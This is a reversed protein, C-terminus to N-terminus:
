HELMLCRIIQLNIEEILCNNCIVAAISDTADDDIDNNNLNFIKLSSLVKLSNCIKVIKATNIMTNSLDLRELTDTELLATAIIVAGQDTINCHNLNLTMLLKFQEVLLETKCRKSGVIVEPYVDEGINIYKIILMRVYTHLYLLM